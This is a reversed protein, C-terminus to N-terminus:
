VEHMLVRSVRQREGSAWFPRRNRTTCARRPAILFPAAARVNPTGRVDISRQSCITSNPLMEESFYLGRPRGRPVCSARVLRGRGPYEPSVMSMETIRVASENTGVDDADMRRIAAAYSGAAPAHWARDRVVIAARCLRVWQLVVGSPGPL